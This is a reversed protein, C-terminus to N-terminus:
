EERYILAVAHACIGEGRGVFGLGENTTAKIGIADPAIQLAEAIVTKMEDTRPGIKPFEALVTMDINGIHWGRTTLLSCVESVFEISPRDKHQADSPPFYKGIDGLGAAGLLADCLAHLLVDADSHGLLGVPSDPFLVGGLWLPRGEAFAHVDYGHGVRFLTPMAAVLIVHSVLIYHVTSSVFFGPSPM